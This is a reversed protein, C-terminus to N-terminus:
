SKTCKKDLTTGVTNLYSDQAHRLGNWCVGSRRWCDYDILLKKFNQNRQRARFSIVDGNRFFNQSSGSSCNCNPKELKQLNWTCSRSANGTTPCIEFFITTATLTSVPTRVASLLALSKLRNYIELNNSADENVDM